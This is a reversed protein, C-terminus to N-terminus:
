KEDYDSVFSIMTEKYVEVANLLNAKYEPEIELLQTQVTSAKLSSLFTIAQMM